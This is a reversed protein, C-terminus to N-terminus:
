IVQKDLTILEIITKSAYCAKTGDNTVFSIM